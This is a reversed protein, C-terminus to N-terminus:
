RSVEAEQRMPVMEMDLGRKKKRVKEGNVGHIKKVM